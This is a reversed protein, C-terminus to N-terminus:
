SDSPSSTRVSPSSRAKRVCRGSGADRCRASSREGRESQLDAGFRTGGASPGRRHNRRGRGRRSRSRGRCPPQRRHIRHPPCRKRRDPRGSRSPSWRRAGPGRRCRRQRGTTDVASAVADLVDQISTADAPVDVDFVRGDMATIRLDPTGGRDARRKRRRDLSAHQRRASWRTAKSCEPRVTAWSVSIRPPPRADLSSFSIASGDLAEIRLVVDDISVQLRADVSEIAAIVDRISAITSCDVVYTSAGAGTGLVLEM